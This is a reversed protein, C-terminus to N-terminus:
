AFLSFVRECFWFSAVVGIVASAPQRLRIKPLQWSIFELVGLVALVFIVQGIEVGVNFGLLASFRDSAPLGLEGLVSAFGLGHLLGFSFTIGLYGRSLDKEKTMEVALLVVSFAILAEVVGISLAFWGMTAMVLTISHAITFSTIAWILRSRKVLFTLALLFLLHDLGIWIHEMGLWVFSMFVPPRKQYSVFAGEDVDVVFTKSRENREETVVIVSRNGNKRSVIIEQQLVEPPEFTWNAFHLNESTYESYAHVQWEEPFTLDISASGNRNEVPTQFFVKFSEGNSSIQLHAKSLEHAQMVLVLLMSVVVSVFRVM